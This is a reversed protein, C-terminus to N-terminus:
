KEGGRGAQLASARRSLGARRGAAFITGAPRRRCDVVTPSPNDLADTELTIKAPSLAPPGVALMAHPSASLWLQPAPGALNPMGQAAPVGPAQEQRM